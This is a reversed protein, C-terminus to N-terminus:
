ALNNLESQVIGPTIISIFLFLVFWLVTNDDKKVFKSFAESYKYLWYINVFPIILLWATPINAGLGNMETKTSVYWYIGYIGFTIFTYLYVLLINRKKVM